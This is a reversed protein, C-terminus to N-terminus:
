MIWLPLASPTHGFATPTPIACFRPPPESVSFWPVSLSPSPQLSPRVTQMPWQSYSSPSRNREDIPWRSPVTRLDVSHRSHAILGFLCRRPPHPSLASSDATHVLVRLSRGSPLLDFSLSAITVEHFPLLVDRARLVGRLLKLLRM